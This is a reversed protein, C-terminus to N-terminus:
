LCKLNDNALSDLLENIKKVISDRRLDYPANVNSITSWDETNNNKQYDPPLATFLIVREAGVIDTLSLKQPKISPDFLNDKTLGAEAAPSVKAEPSLGRYYGVYDVKREKAFKNFYSAAIVSKGAGHECVFIIKKEESM